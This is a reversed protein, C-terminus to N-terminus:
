IKNEKKWKLYEEKTVFCDSFWTNTMFYGRHQKIYVTELWHYEDGFNIPFLAFRKIIREKKRIWKM